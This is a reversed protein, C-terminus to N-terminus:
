PIVYKPFKYAMAIDGSEEYKKSASSNYKLTWTGHVVTEDSAEACDCIGWGLADLVTVRVEGCYTCKRVVESEVIMGSHMYGALNGSLTIEGEGKVKGTGGAYLYAAHDGTEYALNATWLGEASKGDKGIRNLFEWAFESDPAYQVKLTENWIVIGATSDCGDGWIVAKIKMKGTKRYALEGEAGCYNSSEKFKTKQPTTTTFNLQLEHVAAFGSCAVLAVLMPLFYKM